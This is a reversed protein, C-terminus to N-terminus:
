EGLVLHQVLGDAVVEVEKGRTRRRHRHKRGHEVGQAAEMGLHQLDFALVVKFFGGSADHGLHPRDGCEGVPVGDAGGDDIRMGLHGIGLVQEVHHEALRVRLELRVRQQDLRQVRDEHQVGIVLLVAAGGRHAHYAAALGVEESRYGGPHRRQPSRQVATGIHRHDIHQLGDLLLFQRDPLEDRLDLIFLVADAQHTKAVPDVFVEIRAGPDDFLDGFLHQLFQM